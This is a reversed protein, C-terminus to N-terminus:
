KYNLFGPQGLKSDLNINYTDPRKMLPLQNIKYADIYALGKPQSNAYGLTTYLGAEDPQPEPRLVRQSFPAAKCPLVDRSPNASAANTTVRLLLDKDIKPYFLGIDPRIGEEDFSTVTPTLKKVNVAKNDSPKKPIASYLTKNM